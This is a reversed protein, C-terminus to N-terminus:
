DICVNGSGGPKEIERMLERSLESIAWTMALVAVDRCTANQGDFRAVLIGNSSIIVQGIGTLKTTQADLSM